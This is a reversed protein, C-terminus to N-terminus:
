VTRNYAVLRPGLGDAPQDVVAWASNDMGKVARAGGWPWGLLACVAVKLCAGHSVVIGTEGPALVALCDQLGAVMRDRVEAIPEEGEVRPHDDGAAWAAYEAPHAAAFEASTMGSRVGLHRERLRADPVAVLGTAQELYEATRRARTLDSTWLRVPALKALVVAVAAAQQEGVEDLDIDAHGQARDVANWATRGHRLLVLRAPEAM